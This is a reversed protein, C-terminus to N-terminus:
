RTTASSAGLLVYGASHYPQDYGNIVEQLGYVVSDIKNNQFLNFYDPQIQTNADPNPGDSRALGRTDIGTRLQHITNDDAVFNLSGEVAPIGCSAIYPQSGDIAAPKGDLHNGYAVMQDFFTGFVILSTSDPQVNWPAVTITNGSFGGYTVLRSQGVGKGKVIVAVEVMSM